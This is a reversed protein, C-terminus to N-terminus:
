RRSSALTIDEFWVLKFKLALSVGGGYWRLLIEGRFRGKESMAESM